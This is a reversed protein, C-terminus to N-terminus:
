LVKSSLAEGIYYIGIDSSRVENGIKLRLQYKASTPLNFTMAQTLNAVYKSETSDWVIDGGTLTLKLSKERNQPEFQLEMEAYAGQVLPQGNYTFDLILKITDGQNTM